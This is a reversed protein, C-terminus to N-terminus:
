YAVEERKQGGARGRGKMPYVESIALCSHIHKGEVGAGPRELAEPKCKWLQINPLTSVPYLCLFPGKDPDYGVQGRGVDAAESVSPVSLLAQLPPQMGLM